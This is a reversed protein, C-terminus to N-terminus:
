MEDEADGLMIWVHASVNADMDELFAIRAEREEILIHPIETWADLAQMVAREEEAADDSSIGHFLHDIGQKEMAAYQSGKDWDIVPAGDESDYGGADMWAAYALEQEKKAAWVERFLVAMDSRRIAMKELRRIETELDKVERTKKAATM